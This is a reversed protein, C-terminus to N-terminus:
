AGSQGEGKPSPSEACASRPSPHAVSSIERPREDEGLAVFTFEGSAVNIEADGDRERAVAEVAIRM